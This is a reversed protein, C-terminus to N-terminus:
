YYLYNDGVDSTVMTIIVEHRTVFIGKNGATALQLRSLIRIPQGLSQDETTDRAGLQLWEAGRGERRGPRSLAM